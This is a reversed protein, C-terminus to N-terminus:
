VSGRLELKSFRQFKKAERPSSDASSTGSHEGGIV